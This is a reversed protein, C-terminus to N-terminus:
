HAGEGLVVAAPTRLLIWLDMWPTWNRAYQLDLRVMEDFKVRSRGNVQWLGTIGPKAELLRRRHWIDYAEVEYPIPPRPGVLSMEGSLVNFFQPLEDLSTRRLFRGVVTVRRDNTLKFVGPGGADSVRAATGGILQQVYEKHENANNNVYMSRFKLFTFHKGGRGVRIQRFFVPGKSTLKIAIAILMLVPALAIVALASGIIDMARKVAYLTRQSCDRAALDPYLMAYSARGPGDHDWDDPFLHFSLRIQNFRETELASSLRESVRKMMNPVISAKDGQAIETFMVGVVVGEAYWGAADTERISSSLAGLVALLLEKNHGNQLSAGSDVLVLQFPQRSRESRKRELAIINHFAEQSLFNNAPVEIRTNDAQCHTMELSSQQSRATLSSYPKLSWPRHAPPSSKDAKGFVMPVQKPRIGRGQALDPYLTLNSPRDQANQSWDDPFVHFSLRSQNFRELGLTRSLSDSVRKMIGPVSSSEDTAIETFVGGAVMGDAYWGVADTERITSSLEALVNLLHKQNHEHQLPVNCDVLLLLFPKQSRESRKRELAIVQHFAEQSLFTGLATAEHKTEQARHLVSRVYEAEDKVSARSATEPHLHKDASLKSQSEAEEALIEEDSIEFISDALENMIERLIRDTRGKDFSRDIM